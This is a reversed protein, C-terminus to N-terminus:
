EADDLHAPPRLLEGPRVAVREAYCGGAFRIVIVREGREFGRADPGAAVVRGCAEKGIEYPLTQGRRYLGRREVLEAFNIGIAALEVVYGDRPLAPEAVEVPRLVEPGGFAELVVKRM